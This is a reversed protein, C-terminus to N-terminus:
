SRASNIPFFSRLRSARSARGPGRPIAFLNYYLSDTFTTAPGLRELRITQDPTLPQKSLLWCDFCDAPFRDVIDRVTVNFNALATPNVEAVWFPGEAGFWAPPITALLMGEAGEIDVKVLDPIGTWQVEALLRPVTCATVTVATSAARDASEPRLSQGGTDTRNTRVYFTVTGNEATMARHLANVQPTRLLTAGSQLKEVVQADADVAIVRGRPGVAAAAAFTYIGLNAGFDLVTDGPELWRRILRTEWEDADASEFYHVSDPWDPHCIMPFGFDHYTFPRGAARRLRGGSLNSRWQRKLIQWDGTSLLRLATLFKDLLKM